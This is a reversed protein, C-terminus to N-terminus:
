IFDGGDEVWKRIKALNWSGNLGRWRQPEQTWLRRTENGLSIRGMYTFGLESLWNKQARGYPATEDIEQLAEAMRQTDLLSRSLLPDKSDELLTEFAEEEDSKNLAQMEAKAKSAPARKRPSFDPHLEYEMFFKRLAGGFGELEALDAYYTPNKQKFRDLAWQQQWRSFVIFYRTDNADIPLASKYNSFMMYNVTNVVNYTDTKMVRIPVLANTIYPKIKNLVDFRNNGHLRVEEVACFLSKEAWPTYKESLAEGNITSINLLGLAAFMVTALTTKGDGEAGQIVPCWNSRKNTQVIYAMWSLLLKREREDEFLHEMHREFRNIMRKETKNLVEPMEPFSADNFANIYKVGEIEFIEGMGPLYMANNVTEIEYRNLAVHSPSHEPSSRGELRDKKTMMYRSFSADFAKVSLSVRTNPEYFADKHQLYVFGSLWAPCHTHEPNEFRIMGRVVGIAMNTKLAERIKKQIAQALVERQLSDFAIHKIRACVARIAPMGVALTLDDKIEEMEETAVREEEEQAQKLIYRATLPQRKKGEIEFTPWKEDLADMDYNEAQSSWEHWMLLGEQSGSFQHYLAMGVYFWQDYDQPNPVLDLKARIEDASLEVKSADTIFADDYDYKGTGAAALRKATSKEIWGKERCLREFEEVLELAQDQTIEPLDALPTNGPHRKGAWRYPEQTDPHIHFAVYQQGDALVELKVPRDEDDIFVKSQTKPFPKTARYALLTKPPLGVRELTAGVLDTTFGIMHEVIEPDYCDIDVGPAKATKIGVGFNGRGDDLMRQISNKTFTKTEWNKGLPRKEGPKIFLIAYGNDITKAGYKALYEAPM